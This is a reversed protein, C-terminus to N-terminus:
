TVSVDSQEDESVSRPPESSFVAPRIRSMLKKVILPFLGLLIFALLLRRSLIPQPPLVVNPFAFVLTSRNIATLQRGRQKKQDSTLPANLDGRWVPKVAFDSASLMANLSRTLHLKSDATMETDLLSREKQSLRTVIEAAPQNPKAERLQRSFADWDAVDTVRLLSPDAIQNLSPITTGAYVYVCTGALMGTQSIWWYTRTRIKTLGMVLNIVFFPVVPILRLTFLYFAGERDLAENFKVLQDAFRSQITERLFYRSLLFALTAGATSAFSVLVLARWFGFFWGIVLTIIAAGPLSLGTAVVYILFAGGLVLAPAEAYGQRLRTEQSALFEVSLFLYALVLGAILVAALVALAIKKGRSTSELNSDAPATVEDPM